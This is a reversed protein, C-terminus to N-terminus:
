GGNMCHLLLLLGFTQKRRWKENYMCYTSWGKFEWGARKNRPPPSPEHRIWANLPARMSISGDKKRSANLLPINHLTQLMTCNKEARTEDKFNPVHIIEMFISRYQRRFCVILYKKVHQLDQRPACAASLRLPTRCPRPQPPQPQPPTPRPQPKQPPNPGPLLRRPWTLRALPRGLLLSEPIHFFWTRSALYLKILPIIQKACIQSAAPLTTTALTSPAPAAVAPARAPTEAPDAPAPPSRSPSRTLRSSCCALGPSNLASSCKNERRSYRLYILTGSM